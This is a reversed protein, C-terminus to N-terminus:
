QLVQTWNAYSIHLIQRYNKKCLPFQLLFMLIKLIAQSSVVHLIRTGIRM